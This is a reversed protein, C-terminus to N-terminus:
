RAEDLSMEPWQGLVMRRRKGNSGSYDLSFSKGGTSTVLLGLGHGDYHVKSAVTPPKLARISGETLSRKM